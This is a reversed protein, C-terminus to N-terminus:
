MTNIVHKLETTYEQKKSIKGPQKLQIAMRIVTGEKNEEHAVRGERVKLHQHEVQDAARRKLCVRM